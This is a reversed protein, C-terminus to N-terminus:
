FGVVDSIGSRLAFWLFQFFNDHPNRTYKIEGIEMKGSEDPLNTGRIVFIKGILSSIRNVIGDESGTKNNLIAISLYEYAVQLTGSAHGSDVKIDYKASQIMGSKIRHHEAPEIFENLETIDMKSLSGSYQLSFEKSTLPIEMFLEMIASNMFLGKGTVVLNKPHVSHNTIGSVSVNMNDFTIVGPIAKVAYRECYRMRGNIINLSDVKLTKEMLLLYENPMQPKSSGIDYQKDMNVLIDAFVDYINISEASYINGQLMSLFDLDIIKIQPISFRFRTQRFQSKAFFQEADILSYYKISDITMVSDSVSINFKEIRLEDQMKQLNVIIKEAHIASNALDDIMIDRRVLVTIWSIGSVSFSGINCTLTSDSSKLSVSDCGLQNNWIDYHMDGLKISYAENAKNFAKTIPDKLFTNILPDHFFFFILVFLLIVSGTIVAIYKVAKLPSLKRWNSFTKKFDPLKTM